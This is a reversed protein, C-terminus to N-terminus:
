SGASPSEATAKQMQVNLGRWGPLHQAVERLNRRTRAHGAEAPSALPQLAVEFRFSRRSRKRLDKAAMADLSTATSSVVTSLKSKVLRGCFSYDYACTLFQQCAFIVVHTDEGFQPM